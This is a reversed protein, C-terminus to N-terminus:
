CMLLFSKLIILFHYKVERIIPDVRDNEGNCAEFLEKETRLLYSLHQLGYLKVDVNDHKISHTIVALRDM